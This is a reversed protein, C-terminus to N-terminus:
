YMHCNSLATIWKSRNTYIKQAKEREGVICYIQALTLYSDATLLSDKAHEAIKVAEEQRGLLAYPFPDQPIGMSDSVHISEAYDHYACDLYYDHKSGTPSRDALRNNCIGRILLLWPDREKLLASDCLFITLENEHKYYHTWINTYQIAKPSFYGTGESNIIFGHAMAEIGEGYYGLNFLSTTFFSGVYLDNRFRDEISDYYRLADEYRGSKTLWIMPYAAYPITDWNTSDPMEIVNDLGKYLKTHHNYFFEGIQDNRKNISVTDNLTRFAWEIYDTEQIDEVSYFKVDALDYYGSAMKLYNFYTALTQRESDPSNMVHNSDTIWLQAINYYDASLVRAAKREIEITNLFFTNSSDIWNDIIKKLCDVDNTSRHKNLIYAKDWLSWVYLEKLYNYGVTYCEVNKVSDQWLTIIAYFGELAKLEKGKLLLDEAVFFISDMRAILYDCPYPEQYFDGWEFEDIDWVITDSDVSQASLSSVSFILIAIFFIKRM